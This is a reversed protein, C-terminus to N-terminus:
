GVNIYMTESKCLVPLLKPKQYNKEEIRIEILCFLQAIDLWKPRIELSKGLKIM